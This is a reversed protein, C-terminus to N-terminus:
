LTVNNVIDLLAQLKSISEKSCDLSSNINTQYVRIKDINYYAERLV